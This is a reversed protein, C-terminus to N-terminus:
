SAVDGLLRAYVDRTMRGVVAWSNRREAFERIEPRRADLSRYLESDFYGRIAGALSQPDQAPCLMGTEGEIVDDCFSGVNTAVVPLGFSYGLFLVGSQSVETYPLVLVDAAKFYLEADEDAIYEIKALVRGRSADSQIMREIKRLYEECGGRAKGAIVLRSRPHTLLVERFASLLFELGKYPGINGFFLMTPDQASIGLKQKAQVPTLATRPVANNIGFPIVTVASPSVGFEELLESKMKETHVFIQDAARYQVRLTLRNLFSDNGDRKGANINHATLVTKKRLFKYYAMLLTRDLYQFKNNWLIHFIRPRAQASYRLLKGYYRLVRLTKAGLGANESKSGQLNLFRIRDSNHFESSDV